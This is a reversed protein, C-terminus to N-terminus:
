MQLCIKDSCILFFIAYFEYLVGPNKYIVEYLAMFSIEM